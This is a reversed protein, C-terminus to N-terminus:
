PHRHSANRVNSSLVDVNVFADRENAAFIESRRDIAYVTVKQNARFIDEISRAIESTWTDAPREREVAHLRARKGRVDDCRRADARVADRRGGNLPRAQGGNRRSSCM